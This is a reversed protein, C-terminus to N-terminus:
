SWPQVFIEEELNLRRIRVDVSPKSMYDRHLGKLAKGRVCDTPVMNQSSTNKRYELDQDTEQFDLGRIRMDVSPKPM